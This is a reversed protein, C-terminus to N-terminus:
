CITSARGRRTRSPRRGHRAVVTARDPESNKGDDHGREVYKRASAWAGGANGMMPALLNGSGISGVLLGGPAEPGLVAGVVAPVVVALTGPLVMEGRAGDTARIAGAADLPITGAMIGRIERLHQRIVAVM